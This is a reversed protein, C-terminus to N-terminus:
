PRGLEAPAQGDREDLRFWVTRSRGAGESGCAAALALLLYLGHPHSASRHIDGHWDGGADQVEARVHSGHVHGVRVTFTGGPKGSASHAIANAALESVLLAVDDTAPCDDLFARLAVRAPRLQDATGPFVQQWTRALDSPAIASRDRMPVSRVPIQPVTSMIYGHILFRLLHM